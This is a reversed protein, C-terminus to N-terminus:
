PSFREVVKVFMTQASTPSYNVVKLFKIQSGNAFCVNRVELPLIIGGSQSAHMTQANRTTSNNWRKLLMPQASTAQNRLVEVM